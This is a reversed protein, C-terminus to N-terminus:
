QCNTINGLNTCTVLKGNINYSHSVGFASTNSVPPAVVTPQALSGAIALARLAADRRMAQNQQRVIEENHARIMEANSQNQELQKQMAARANEAALIQSQQIEKKTLARQIEVDYLEKTIKGKDLRSGAEIAVAFFEKDPQSNLWNYKSYAKQARRWGETNNIIKKEVLAHIQDIEIKIREAPPLLSM